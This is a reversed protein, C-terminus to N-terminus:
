SRFSRAPASARNTAADPTEVQFTSLYRGWWAALGELAAEVAVPDRHRQIAPTAAELSEAQGLLTLLEVTEGPALTGLHHMLAAVNDGRRAEYNGLEAEQLSLPAAWTGYENAGLFRRRDTEFSSAPHNSTFFNVQTDKTM